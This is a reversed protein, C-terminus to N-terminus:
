GLEDILKLAELKAERDLKSRTADFLALRRGLEVVLKKRETEGAVARLEGITKLAGLKADRDLENRTADLLGIQREVEWLKAQFDKDGGAEPFSSQESTKEM